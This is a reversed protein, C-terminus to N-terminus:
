CGVFSPTRKQLFANVAERHDSTQLCQCFHELEEEFFIEPDGNEASNINKKMLGLATTPGRALFTALEKAEHQVDRDPVVRTMIGLAHAEKGSLVPATLYLERTRASGVIKTLFYAGGFDGPLGVRAYGTTIKANEGVVRFDCALALSLGAGAAAGDVAAVVPKPMGHLIRAAQTIRRMEAVKEDYAPPSEAQLALRGVDGGVCFTGGMGNLLVARVQPDSAARQTADVLPLTIDLNLANRQEPRNLTITLVNGDLLQLVRNEM